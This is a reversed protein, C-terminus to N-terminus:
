GFLARPQAIDLEDPRFVRPLKEERVRDQDVVPGAGGDDIRGGVESIELLQGRSFDDLLDEVGMIVDIMARQIVEEALGTEDAVLFVQGRQEAELIVELIGVALAFGIINLPQLPDEGAEVDEFAM